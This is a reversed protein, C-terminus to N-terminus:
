NTEFTAGLFYNHALPTGYIQAINTGSSYFVDGAAVGAATGDIVSAAYINGTSNVSVGSPLTMNVGSSCTGVTTVNLNIQLAVTKQGLRKYRGSATASTLTGSGCSITPTYAIWAGQSPAPFGSQAIPYLPGEAASQFYNGGNDYVVSSTNNALNVNPRGANPTYSSNYVFTTGAITIQQPQTGDTRINNTAYSTTRIFSVGNLTLAAGPCFNTQLDIDYDGGNGEFVTGYFSITNYGCVNGGATDQFFAGHTGGTGTTGNYQISGNYFSVAAFDKVVLGSSTNSAIADDYFSLSNSGTQNVVGNLVLGNANFVFNSNSVTSQELDSASWATTFGQITIDNLHLYATDSTLLGTSGSTANGQITLDSINLYAVDNVTNGKINVAAGALGNAMLITSVSRQGRLNVYPKEYGSYSTLDEVLGGPILCTGSPLYITGGGAAIVTNILTQLASTDNTSGDCKVGYSQAWYDPIKIVSASGATGTGGYLQSTTASPLANAVFATTAVQTTNTGLSATPATPTGTLSPSAITNTGNATIGDAFTVLGNTSSISFPTDTYTGSVYRDIYLGGASNAHVSWEQTAGNKNFNLYAANSGTSDNITFTPSVYGLTLPGTFTTGTTSAVSGYCTFGTGSTWQLASSSSSCSPMSFATPSASSGTGNALVTNAAQTALDATTVLGTATLAGTITPSAITPSTAQVVNGSGTSATFSYAGAGTRSMFGTGAFGTINDLATGSASASNTGGSAVPIPPSIGSISGGTIAAHANTMTGLVTVNQYTPSPYTQALAMLPLWLAALLLKKM